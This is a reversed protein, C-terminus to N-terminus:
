RSPPLVIRPRRMRALRERDRAEIQSRRELERQEIRSLRRKAGTLNRSGKRGRTRWKGRNCPRCAPLALYGAFARDDHALDWQDAPTIIKLCHPNGLHAYACPLQGAQALRAALARRAAKHRATGHRPTPM